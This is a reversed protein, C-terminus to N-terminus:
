PSSQTTFFPIVDRSADAFNRLLSFCRSALFEEVTMGLSYADSTDEIFKGWEKLPRSDDPSADLIENCLTFVKEAFIERSWEYPDDPVSDLPLRRSDAQWRINGYISSYIDATILRFAPHWEAPAISAVSDIKAIGTVANKRSVINEATVSQILAEVASPWDGHVVARELAAEANKDVTKPYAFDPGKMQANKTAKSNRVTKASADPVGLGGLLLVTATLAVTRLQNFLYKTM